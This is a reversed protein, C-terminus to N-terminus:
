AAITSSTSSTERSARAPTAPLARGGTRRGVIPSRDRIEGGGQHHRRHQHRAPRTARPPGRYDDAVVGAHGENLDDILNQDIPM